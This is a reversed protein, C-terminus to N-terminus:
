AFGPIQLSAIERIERGGKLTSIGIDMDGSAAVDFLCFVDDGCLDNAEAELEPTAFAPQYSPEYFPDYFTAWNDGPQYTFLSDSPTDVIGLILM